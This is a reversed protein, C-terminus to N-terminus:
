HAAPMSVTAAAPGNWFCGACHCLKGPVAGEAIVCLDLLVHRVAVGSNMTPQSGQLCVASHM